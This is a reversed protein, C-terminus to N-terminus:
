VAILDAKLGPYVKGILADQHFVKANISTASRLIDLTNMGYEAMLELELVNNGHTFVGVDGGVCITVGAKLAERFTIHKLAVRAPANDIDKKWGKYISVSEGAAITPCLAVGKEKMLKFVEPTGGDGHEITEVGALIARRMGEATSAHAVTPRGSSKATEVILKMEEISFTARAEDSLGWRYDAYFKIVDAGKGIQDRVVRILDQGDAAEAGLMVAFDTDFGKPGYSGTAVIARGAVLMRPGPIIGQNIAQKLGVDAYGAGESGLDRVTTFGALLTKRAHVTARVTRVADSEKLVQEDWSTENYPHLFLHSHGEILGPLLTSGKLELVKAQPPIHIATADGAAAIKDGEVIVIWNTHMQEGDFVRDAKIAYSQAFCSASCLFVAVFYKIM